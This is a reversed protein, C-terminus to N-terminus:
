TENAYFATTLHSYKLYVSSRENKDMRVNRHYLNRRIIKKLEKRKEERKRTKKELAIEERGTRETWSLCLQWATIM